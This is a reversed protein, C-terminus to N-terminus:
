NLLEILRPVFIMIGITSSVIASVLVAGAAYDKIEGIKDNWKPEIFNAISEIATNILESIFVLGICMIILAIEIQNLQLIFSAVLVLITFVLHGRANHEKKLLQKIGNIAFKFSRIRERLSFKKASM